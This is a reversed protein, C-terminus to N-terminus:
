TFLPLNRYKEPLDLLSGWVSNDFTTGDWEYYIGQTWIDNTYVSCEGDPPCMYGTEKAWKRYGKSTHIFTEFLSRYSLNAPIKPEYMGKKECECLKESCKEEIRGCESYIRAVDKIYEERQYFPNYTKYRSLFCKLENCWVYKVEKQRQDKYFPKFKWQNWQEDSSVKIYVAEEKRVLQYALRYWNTAKVIKKSQEDKMEFSFLNNFDEDQHRKGWYKEFFDLSLGMRGASERIRNGLIRVSHTFPNYNFRTNEERFYGNETWVCDELIGRFENCM